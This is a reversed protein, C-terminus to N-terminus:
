LTEVHGQGESTRLTAPDCFPSAGPELPRAETCSVRHPPPPHLPPAPLSGAAGPTMMLGVEGDPVLPGM